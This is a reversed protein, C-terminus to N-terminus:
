TAVGSIKASLEWIVIAVLPGVLFFLVLDELWIHGIGIGLLFAHGLGWHGRVYGVIAWAEILFGALLATRAFRRSLVAKSMGARMVIGVCLLLASVELAFYEPVM